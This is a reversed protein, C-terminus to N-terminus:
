MHPQSHFAVVLDQKGIVVTIEISLHHFQITAALWQSGEDGLLSASSLVQLSPSDASVLPHLSM